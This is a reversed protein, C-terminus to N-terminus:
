TRWSLFASGTWRTRPRQTRAASRPGRPAQLPFRMSVESGHGYGESAITVTGGHADMLRKVLALGIGLGPHTRRTGAEQQRFMEFAFPLFGPAMGEGTDRVVVMGQGGDETVTITITGDPPTFKM